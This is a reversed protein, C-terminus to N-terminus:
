ILNSLCPYCYVIIYRQQLSVSISPLWLLESDRNECAAGRAEDEWRVASLKRLWLQQIVAACETIVWTSGKLATKKETSDWLVICKKKEKLAVNIQHCYNSDWIAASCKYFLEQDCLFNCGFSSFFQIFYMM